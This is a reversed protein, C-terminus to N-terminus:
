KGWGSVSRCSATAVFGISLLAPLSRIVDTRFLEPKYYVVFCLVICPLSLYRGKGLCDRPSMAGLPVTHGFSQVGFIHKYGCFTRVELRPSLSLAHPMSQALGCASCIKGFLFFSTLIPSDVAKCLHAEVCVVGGGGGKKGKRWVWSMCTCCSPVLLGYCMNLARVVWKCVEYGVGVGGAGRALEEEGETEGGGRAGHELGALGVGGPTEDLFPRMTLTDFSLLLM